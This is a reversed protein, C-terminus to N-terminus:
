LGFLQILLPELMLFKGTAKLNLTLLAHSKLHAVFFLFLCLVLELFKSCM